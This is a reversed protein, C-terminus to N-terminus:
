SHSLAGNAKPRVSCVNVGPGYGPRYFGESNAIPAVSNVAINCRAAITVTREKAAYRTGIEQRETKTLRRKPQGAGHNRSPGGTKWIAQKAWGVTYNLAAAIQAYTYNDNYMARAIDCEEKRADRKDQAIQRKAIERQRVAIRKPGFFGHHREHINNKVLIQRVRERTLSYQTSVEELTKGSLYLDCIAKNREPDRPGYGAGRNQRRLAPSADYRKAIQYVYALAGFAVKAQIASAPEGAEYMRVVELNRLEIEKRHVTPMRLEIEVPKVGAAGILAAVYDENLGAMAALAAASVGKAHADLISQNRVIMRELAVRDLDMEDTM